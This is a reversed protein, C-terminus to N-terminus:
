GTSKGKWFYSVQSDGDVKYTSSQEVGIDM